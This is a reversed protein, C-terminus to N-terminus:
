KGGMGLAKRALDRSDSIPTTSDDPIAAVPETQVLGTRPNITVWLNNLDQYNTLESETANQNYTTNELRERKGVLLYIPEVVENRNGGVFICEVSGNPSFLITVDGSAWNYSEGEGSAFLDVVVAAPLQLPQAYGKIPARFIRYPVPQSWSTSWPVLLNQGVDSITSYVYIDSTPDALVYGQADVNNDPQTGDNGIIRYMPGQCNFQILDGPRVMGTMLPESLNAVIYSTGSIDQGMVRAYSQMTEGCYCPPVECQDLTMAGPVAPAFRRLIVGCPRGTEMARNRASSIYVNLSRAAERIRRGEADPRIMTATLGLLLLIISIAIM